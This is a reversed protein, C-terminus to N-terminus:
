EYLYEGLFDQPYYKNDEQFVSRAIITLNHIRLIKNLPLNDDSNFKINMFNKGYEGPKDNIKEILNKIGDWLETYKTLVEKNKDTSALILYKNGNKEEIYGDAKDIILYLPNVSHMNVYYFDKMTINWIYYINKYLNKDIELLNPNFNKINIMDDSFYYTENKVNIEKISGM